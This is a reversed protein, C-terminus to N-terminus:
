NMIYLFYKGEFSPTVFAYIGRTLARKGLTFKHYGYIIEDSKMDWWPYVVWVAPIISTENIMFRNKDNESVGNLFFYELNDALQPYDNADFEAKLYLIDDLCNYSHKIIIATEPLAFGFKRKFMKQPSYFVMTVVLVITLFLAVCLLAWKKWRLM